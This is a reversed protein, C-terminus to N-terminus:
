LPEESEAASAASSPTPSATNLRFNFGAQEFAEPSSSIAAFLRRVLYKHDSGRAVSFPQVALNRTSDIHIVDIEDRHAQVDTNYAITADVHGALVDPVLLASSSKYVVVEGDQRQKDLMREYLGEEQLLMRTLAGITCQEPQGIAVRVGPQVLDALEDVRTGGKPIVIVFEADSVNVDEQFWEAVNDLYYRDCAMYVDPFGLEQRQGEIADM